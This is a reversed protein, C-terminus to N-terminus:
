AVNRAPIFGAGVLRVGITEGKRQEM